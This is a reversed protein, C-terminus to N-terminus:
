LALPEAPPRPACPPPSLLVERDPVKATAARLTQSDTFNAEGNNVWFMGKTAMKM